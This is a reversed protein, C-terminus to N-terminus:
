RPKGRGSKRPAPKAPKKKVKNARPTTAKRQTHSSKEASFDRGGKAGFSALLKGVRPLDDTHVGLLDFRLGSEGTKARVRPAPVKADSSAALHKQLADAEPEADKPADDRGAYKYRNVAAELERTTTDAFPVVRIKGDEDPVRIGLSLLDAPREDEPTWEIYELGLILKQVGHKGVSDEDFRTAVRRYRWLTTYGQAFTADAYEALTAFKHQYLKRRAIQDFLRGIRWALKEGEALMARLEDEMASQDRQEERSLPIIRPDFPIELTKRM